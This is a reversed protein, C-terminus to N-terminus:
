ENPLREIVIEWSGTGGDPCTQLSLGSLVPANPEEVSLAYFVGLQLNFDAYGPSVWPRLGTVARDAGDAWFLWLM